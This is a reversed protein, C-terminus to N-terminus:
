CHSERHALLGLNAAAPALGATFADTGCLRMHKIKGSRFPTRSMTVYNDIDLVLGKVGGKYANTEQLFGM